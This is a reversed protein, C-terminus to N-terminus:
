HMKSKKFSKGDRWDCLIISFIFNYIFGNPHILYFKIYYM